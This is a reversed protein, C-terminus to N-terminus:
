VKIQEHSSNNAPNLLAVLDDLISKYAFPYDKLLNVLVLQAKM